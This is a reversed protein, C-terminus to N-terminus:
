RSGDNSRGEIMDAVLEVPHCVRYGEGMEKKIKSICAPCSSVIVRAGLRQYEKKKPEFIAVGEQYCTYGFSGAQGCCRDALEPNLIELNEIQSLMKLPEEELGSARLHCPHHYTIKLRSRSGNQPLSERRLLIFQSIDFLKAKLELAKQHYESGDEFLEPYSGLRHLCSACTSVVAGFPQLADINFRAKEMLNQRHGYVEMPLGCCKQPPMAFDWGFHRAVAIAAAGAGTAFYNDACGHFLAVEGSDRCLQPYRQRLTRRAPRPFVAHQDLGFRSKGVLAMLQRAPRTRLLPYTVAGAKVLLDFLRPKDFVSIVRGANKHPHTAKFQLIEGAIDVGAPCITTCNKCNLCYQYLKDLEKRAAKGQHLIRLWGRPSIDERRFIEFAPCYGNCKGCAACTIELKKFDIGETFSTESFVVGPNFLNQPDLNNKIQQFVNYIQEGYLQKVLPARLRGDAHEATSSGGLRFVMAYVEDYIRRALNLERDDSIDFLPRIHMNGDGIHGFLGFTLNEQKMRHQLWSIFETLKSVPLSVDEIMAFPRKRPHHRYLTPVIARRAAWLSQRQRTDAAEEPPALFKLKEGLQKLKLRAQDIDDEYELLLMADAQAPISYEERGILNLTAGDVIELAAPRTELLLEVAAGADELTEFFVRYSAPEGEPLPVVGLRVSLILGLTGQSGVYLAPLNLVGDMLELVVQRLNYGSSNKKLDPWNELILDSNEMLLDHINAYEPHSKLFQLFQSSGARLKPIKLPCADKGVVTMEEVYNSTLGYKVSHAGSSNNALMGGIQCVDGSSPDPAFFLRHKKLALNLDRHIIGTQCVVASKEIDIEKIATLRSCDIVYGSGLAGGALGTGGGRPTVPLGAKFAERVAEVTEDEHTPCIVKAPNVRYISADSAYAERSISAELRSAGFYKLMTSIDSREAL